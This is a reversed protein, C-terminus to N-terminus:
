KRITDVISCGLIILPYCGDDGSLDLKRNGIGIIAHDLKSKGGSWGTAPFENGSYAQRPRPRDEVMGGDVTKTTIFSCRYLIICM